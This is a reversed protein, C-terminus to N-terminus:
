PIGQCMNKLVIIQKNNQIFPNNKKKVFLGVKIFVAKLSSPFVALVPFAPGDLGRYVIFLKKWFSKSM